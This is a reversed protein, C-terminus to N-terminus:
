PKSKKLGEKKYKLILRHGKLTAIGYLYHEILEQSVLLLNYKRAPFADQNFPLFSSELRYKAIIEINIEPRYLEEKIGRELNLRINEYIYTNKHQMFKRFAAPHFKELDFLITPNMTRMAEDFFEKMMFIEEIANAAAEASGNCDTEMELMEDEIVAMVLEDKDAYFNYITKKSIGLQGAIEDMTISRIGYRMFLEGAKEKIRTAPEMNTYILHL